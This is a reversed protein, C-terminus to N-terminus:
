WTGRLARLGCYISVLALLGEGLPASPRVPANLLRALARSPIPLDGGSLAARETAARVSGAGAAGSAEQTPDAAAAALGQASAPIEVAVLQRARDWRRQAAERAEVVQSDM